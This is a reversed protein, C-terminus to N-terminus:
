PQWTCLLAVFSHSLRSIHPNTLSFNSLSLVNTFFDSLYTCLSSIFPLSLSIGSRFHCLPAASCLHTSFQPLDTLSSLALWHLPLPFLCYCPTSHPRNAHAARHRCFQLIFKIFTHDIFPLLNHLFSSCHAWITQLAQLTCLQWKPCCRQQIQFQPTM